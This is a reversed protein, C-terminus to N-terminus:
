HRGPGHDADAAGDARDDHVEADEPEADGRAEADGHGADRDDPAEADEHEAEGDRDDGPLVGAGPPANKPPPNAMVKGADKAGVTGLDQDVAGPSGGPAGSCACVVLPLVASALMGIRHM